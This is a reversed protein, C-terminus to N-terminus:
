FDSKKITRSLFIVSEVVLKKWDRSEKFKKYREGISLFVNQALVGWCAIAGLAGEIM